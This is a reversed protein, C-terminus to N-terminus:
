AFSLYDYGRLESNGGFYQFDPFDGMSRFGKIRTAFVGTTGIRQYNRVDAEVTQRSLLSGIKPSVDYAFRMTNGALPGFERFVTTEQVFAAGLPLVTGNRFIPQGFRATQQAIYNQAALQTDA